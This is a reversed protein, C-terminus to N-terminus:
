DTGCLPNRSRLKLYQDREIHFRKRIAEQLRVLTPSTLRSCDAANLVDGTLPNVAFYGIIPSGSPNSWTAAFFYFEPDFSRPSSILTAGANNVKIAESVLKRAEELSVRQSESAITNYPEAVYLGIASIAAARMLLLSITLSHM